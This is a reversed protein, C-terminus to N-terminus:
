KEDRFFLGFPNGLKQRRQYLVAITLLLALFESSPGAYWIGLEAFLVPLIFILPLTFFYVKALRLIAARKADGMAQFVVGVMMLPGLLFLASSMIPIIRAVEETVTIDNVFASGLQNKLLLVFLQCFVCYIFAIVIAVKIASNSRLWEKAGINNGLITQFAMSLGLLPLFIFTMIRTIIGYAAVTMSYDANSWIQLNYLIFASSLAVGVYSLSTPAGLALFDSWLERNKTFRVIAVNLATNSYRRFLYVAGLSLAQALLTGYVSGVVGWGLVAIFIYNFIVNLLVSLLPVLAMFAMQGECRLSDSNITLVFLLPSFFIMLSLYDYSMSSLSESDNNVFLVLDKGGVLFLLILVLCVLMSLTMAQGYASIAEDKKNAGLLRAMVSSFGASVWSSLAVLLMFAPFVSTVAALAYSGVYEGLFYADVLSFSGNVLMMLIIPAATKMFVTSLTGTLFMNNSSTTM